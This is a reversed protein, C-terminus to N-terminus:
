KNFKLEMIKRELSDLGSSHVYQINGVSKITDYVDHKAYSTIFFVIDNANCRRLVATPKTDIGSMFDFQGGHSEVIEKYGDKRGEDGIVLVKQGDLIKYNEYLSLKETLDKITNLLEREREELNRVKSELQIRENIYDKQIHILKNNSEDVAENCIQLTEESIFDIKNGKGYRVLLNVIFIIERNLAYVFNHNCEKYQIKTLEDLIQYKGLLFVLLYLRVANLYDFTKIYEKFLNVIEDDNRYFNNDALYSLIFENYFISINPDVDRLPLGFISSLKGISFKNFFNKALYKIRETNHEGSEKLKKIENKSLLLVETLITGLNKEDQYSMSHLMGSFIVIDAETVDNQDAIELVSATIKSLKIKHLFQTENIQNYM